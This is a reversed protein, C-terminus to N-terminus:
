ALRRSHNPYLITAGAKINTKVALSVMRRNHNAPNWGGAKVGATVKVGPLNKTKM